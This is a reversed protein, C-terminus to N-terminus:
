RCPAQAEGTLPALWGDILARPGQMEWRTFAARAEVLRDRLACAGIHDRLVAVRSSPPEGDLSRFEDPAIRAPYRALITMAVVLQWAADAPRGAEALAQALNRRSRAVGPAAHVARTLLTLDDRWAAGDLTAVTGQGVLFAGVLAGVLTRVPAATRKEVAEVLLAALTVVWLSPLFFLRDAMVAVAPLFVHSVVVYSAAFGLLADAVGPPRRWTMAVASAAAVAVVIGIAGLLPEHGVDIGAYSYDPALAAPWALHALYHLLVAGAGLLRAAFGAGILPNEMAREPGLAMWPMRLCRFAVVGALVAANSAFLLVMGPGRPDGRRTHWRHVLVPALLAIPLASEKSGIALLSAAAAALGVGPRVPGRDRIPLLIAILSFLAALLEARGAISPVVDAHLALLGFALVAGYRARASLVPGFFRALFRDCVGLLAAYLAVNTAHFVWPRGGGAHWDLWYTLTTMPRWSGITDMFSRGWFDRLLLDTASLAGHVGRHGVVAFDDDLAFGFTVSSAYPLAGLAVVAAVVRPDSPEVRQGEGAGPDQGASAETAQEV